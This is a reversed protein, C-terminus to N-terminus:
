RWGLVRFVGERQKIREPLTLLRDRCAGLLLGVTFLIGGGVTVAVAVANLRSWPLFILLSVFYLATLAAGTLTTSKLQCIFGSTVLLVGAALFGLENLLIFDDRSRDILTAVALPVGVLLSGLFLGASVLDSPRDQERYWGIHGAVLMLTGVAVSVVELKQLYTLTSLVTLALATVAAQGLATVVYWRRWGAHRSLACALLSVATSAALTGVPAWTIQGTAYRSLGLLIGATFAVSLLTNAAQHLTNALPFELSGEAAVVRSTALLSIGVLAFGLLVVEAALHINLMQIGIALAWVLTAGAVHVLIGRRRVILDSYVYGYTGAIVLALALWRLEGVIPSPEARLAEYYPEFVPHFLWDGAVQAGLVLGLGGALLAHGSWFFAMGFRRRGFPGEQEPFARELHVAVLGLAVLMTAPSAIEWFKQPSPPLDALILLGTMTVGAVFIYVFTEERLILASAAYLGSIVLAAVWLHGDLAILDNAHYYWLNLPMVFCAVLTLARGAIRYRTQRLLFWGAGLLTANAAGLSVAVMPPTLFENVWLLIVLGLVMLGGGFTLLMQISKPDLLIELLNRRPTRARPVPESYSM